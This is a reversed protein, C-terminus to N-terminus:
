APTQKFEVETLRADFDLSLRPRLNLLVRRGLLLTRDPNIAVFPSNQWGDVCIMTTRYQRSTSTADVLDILVEKAFYIYPRSLHRANYEFDDPELTIVGNDILLELDSYCEYAGTDLDAETAFLNNHGSIKISLSPYFDGQEKTSHWSTPSEEIALLFKSFFVFPCKGAKKQIDRIKEEAPYDGLNKGHKAVQGDIVMIWNAGLAKFQNEIWRRNLEEADSQYRRREPRPLARYEEMSINRSIFSKEAASPLSTNETDHLIQMAMALIQENESNLSGRKERVKQILTETTM